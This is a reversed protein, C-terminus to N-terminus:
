ETDVRMTPDILLTQRLEDVDRTVSGYLEPRYRGGFGERFDAVVRVGVWSAVCFILAAIITDSRRSSM